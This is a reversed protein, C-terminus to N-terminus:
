EAYVHEGWRYYSELHLLEEELDVLKSELDNARQVWKEAKITSKDLDRTLKIREREEFDLKRLTQTQLVKLNYNDRTYARLNKGDYSLFVGTSVGVITGIALTVIITCISVRIIRNYM